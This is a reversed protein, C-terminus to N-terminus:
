LSDLFEVVKGYKQKVKNGQSASKEFVQKMAQAVTKVVEKTPVGRKNVHICIDVIKEVVNALVKNIIKVVVVTTELRKLGWRTQLIVLLRSATDRAVRAVNSLVTSWSNHTADVFPRTLRSAPYRLVAHEMAATSMRLGSGRGPVTLKKAVQTIPEVLDQPERDRLLDLTRTDIACGIFPILNVNDGDVLNTTTKDPNVSAGFEPLGSVLTQLFTTALPKSTSIFLFDDCVRVLMSNHNKASDQETTSTKTNAVSFSTLKKIVELELEDYVLNCLLTSLISGQPIGVTQRYIRGGESAQNSGDLYVLNCSIHAKLLNYLDKGLATTGYVLDILVSATRFALSDATHVASEKLMNERFKSVSHLMDQSTVTKSSAVYEVDRIYRTIVGKATQQSSSSKQATEHKTSSRLAPINVQKYAHFLYNKFPGHQSTQLLKKAVKLAAAQPITDFCRTIDVKVFYLQPMTEPTCKHSALIRQKFRAIRHYLDPILAISGTGEVFHNELRQSDKTVLKQVKQRHEFSLASFVDKLLTSISPVRDEPSVNETLLVPKRSRAMCVIPRYGSMVEVNEENKMKPIFRIPTAALPCGSLEQAFPEVDSRSVPQLSSLEKFDAFTWQSIQTWVDHRYYVLKSTPTDALIETVYFNSSILSPLFSSFIWYLLELLLERRKNFEQCSTPSSSSPKTKSAEERRQCSPSVAWDLSNTQMEEAIYSLRLDENRGLRLYVDLCEFLRKWNAAPGILGAPLVQRFVQKCFLYVQYCPTTLNTNKLADVFNRKQEDTKLKKLLVAYPKNELNNSDLLTNVLKNAQVILTNPCQHDLLLHYKCKTHNKILMKVYGLIKGHLRKPIRDSKQSFRPIRVVRSEDLRVPKTQSPSDVEDGPSPKLKKAFIPTSNEKVTKKETTIPTNYALPTEIGHQMPFIFRLISKIHTLDDYNNYLNLIYNPALGFRVRNSHLYPRAYLVDKKKIAIRSANKVATSVQFSEKTQQKQSDQQKKKEGSNIELVPGSVQLMTTLNDSSVQFIVFYLMLFYLVSKKELCNYLTIWNEDTILSNLTTNIHKTVIRHEFASESDVGFGYTLIHGKQVKKITDLIIARQIPSLSSSQSSVLQSSLTPTSLVVNIRESLLKASHGLLLDRVLRKYFMDLPIDTADISKGYGSISFSVTLDEPSIKKFSYPFAIITTKLFSEFSKQKTTWAKSFITEDRDYISELFDFLTLSKSYVRKLATQVINLAQVYQQKEHIVTQNASNKGIKKNLRQKTRNKKRKSKSCSGM